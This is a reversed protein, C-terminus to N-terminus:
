ARGSHHDCPEGEEGTRQYCYEAGRYCQRYFSGVSRGLGSFSRRRRRVSYVLRSASLAPGWAGRGSNGMTGMAEYVAKRVPEPKYLTTAANDLYIM